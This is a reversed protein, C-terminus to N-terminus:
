NKLELAESLSMKYPTKAIPQAGPVLEIEHVLERIPPLESLEESVIDEFESLWEPEQGEFNKEVKNLKLIYIPLGKKLGKVLHNIKVVKLPSKGARGQIQVQAGSTFLFSISGKRCSIDAYNKSLWDM